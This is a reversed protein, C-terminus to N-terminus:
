FIYIGIDWTQCYYV